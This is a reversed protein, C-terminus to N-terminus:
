EVSDSTNQNNIDSYYEDIRKLLGKAIKESDIQETQTKWSEKTGLYAEEFTTVKKRSPRSGQEVKIKDPHLAALGDLLGECYRAQVGVVKAFEHFPLDMGTEKSRAAAYLVVSLIRPGVITMTTGGAQEVTGEIKTENFKTVQNLLDDQKQKMSDQAKQLDGMKQNLPSLAQRISEDIGSFKSIEDSISEEIDQIRSMHGLSSIGSQLSYVISVVALVISTITAAFSFNHYAEDNIRGPAILLVFLVILVCILVIYAIHWISVRKTWISHKNDAM